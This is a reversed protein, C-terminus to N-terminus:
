RSGPNLLSTLVHDEWVGNIKPYRRALGEEQVGLSSLLGASRANSPMYNAMVRNLGLENFAHDIVFALLAKMVGSGQASESVSYGVNCAQFPGRSINSLSCVAIVPGGEEAMSLFHAAGGAKDQAIWLRLREDWFVETYFGAPREPEWTCLHAKNAGYYEALVRADAITIKRHQM